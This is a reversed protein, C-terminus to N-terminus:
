QIRKGEHDMGAQHLVLSTAKGQADTVFTIQADVVKLFFETQSEPYIANKGQRTAQAYLQDGDRTISIVFNPTLAYDGVYGQLVSGDVHIEKHDDPSMPKWLPAGADLLHLGIDDTGEMTFSNSLVVVGVGGQRDFGVFSRYGGTGGNHWVIEKGNRTLTLWGLGTQLQTSGAPRSVKLMEVM